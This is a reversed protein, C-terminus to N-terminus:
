KRPKGLVYHTFHTTNYAVENIQKPGYGQRGLSATDIPIRYEVNHVDILVWGDKLRHNAQDQGTTEYVEEMDELSMFKHICNLKLLMTTIFFMKKLLM